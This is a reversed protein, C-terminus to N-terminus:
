RFLTAHGKEEHRGGRPDTYRVVCVYTGTPAARGSNNVLGNWANMPDDSKFVVGGYRDWIVMEFDTIGRFFGGGRYEDNLGDNNPTFANPLIYTIRPTVEISKTITDECGYYHMIALQVDVFGTDPFTFTPDTGLTRGLSGEEGFEWAWFAARRSNDHFQVMPNFNTIFSPPEYVFDAVPLSDVDIWRPFFAEEFCGIPSTVQVYIDFNGPILYTHDPSIDYSISDDGFSWITEYTSDIPFSLNVFSVDLPPCGVSESPQFIIAEPAPQWVLESSDTFFCGLSDTATLIVTFIGPADYEYEPSEIESQNLDGFKWRYFDLAAGNVDTTNEFLVPGADCTDYVGVFSPFMPPTVTVEIAATDSCETGPNLIMLGPYFGTGPFEISVDRTDWTSLPSLPNNDFDFQWEYEDIFDEDTSQNIITVMSDACSFVAFAEGAAIDVGEIAAVVNEECFSVNFQFDRQIAGILAGNRFEQVCIGVVFQGQIIPVGSIVGTLPDITVQPNGGMPNVESYGAALVFNVPNYPPPLDPDPNPDTNAGGQLPACFSYILQDGDADFAGHDFNLPLGACIVPPPLQNFVPSSNCESQAQPTIEVYYTAGTDGPGVINNISENRCCRQYIVYFSEDSLIPLSRTFVYRGREVCINPPVQVCPNNEAPDITDVVPPDLFLDDYPAGNLSGSRYISVNAQQAGPAADLPINGNFCDRYVRMTFLYINNGPINPDAGQCIYTMEGGVVHSATSTDPSLYLFIFALFVRLLQKM